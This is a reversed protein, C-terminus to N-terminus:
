SVALRQALHELHKRIAVSRYCDLVRSVVKREDFEARARTESEAGMQERRADDDGIAAIAAALAVPDRVPVLLGNRGSQVVQRCGRVDTAVIPRGMAAAEMAARPFGERRSALVFIDLAAYLADVDDRHGLFRVGQERAQAILAPDLADPKDPDPAGIVVLVYRHHDLRSFADFLEPYGKEAVLRGVAGLVVVGDAVGLEARRAAREGASFRSRDFRDLDVGNGLLEAHRALHLRRMQELDEVNQFLEADSFRAAVGELGYVLARKAASDDDTAYLGHVTNVVIPVGALRGVLRGYVGPKPNHTHLVDVRERRLITWLEHAARLDAGLDPARTSSELAIHRIGERELEGVWPGPASIGIATGGADRVALLQARVLFRLSVDVTTLHAVTLGRHADSVSGAM